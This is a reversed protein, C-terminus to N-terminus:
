TLINNSNKYSKKVIVAGMDSARQAGSGREPVVSGPWAIQQGRQRAARQVENCREGKGFRENQRTHDHGGAKKAAQHPM